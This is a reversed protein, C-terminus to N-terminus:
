GSGDRVARLDEALRDVRPTQTRYAREVFGEANTLLILSVHLFTYERSDDEPAETREYVLGYEEGVVERAREQTEPRLFHWSGTPDVGREDAYTRLRDVDDRRPDFSLALFSVDESFGERRARERTNRLGAILVPCISRCHTYFFTTLTPRGVDRVAVSEGSFPDPVTVDPVPDGWTPHAFNEPDVRYEQEDLVVDPNADGLGLTSLCGATATLGAVGAGAALTSLYERRNM